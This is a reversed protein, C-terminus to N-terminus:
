FQGAKALAGAPLSCRGARMAGRGQGAAASAHPHRQHIVRTMAAFAQRRPPAIRVARPEGTVLVRALDFVAGCPDWGRECPKAV